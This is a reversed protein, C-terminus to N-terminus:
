RTAEALTRVSASVSEGNRRLYTDACALARRVLDVSNPTCLAIVHLTPGERRLLLKIRAGGSGVTLSTSFPPYSRAAQFAASKEKPLPSADRVRAPAVSERADDSRPKTARAMGPLSATPVATRGEARADPARFSPDSARRAPLGRAPVVQALHLASFWAQSLSRRDTYPLRTRLVAISRNATTDTV